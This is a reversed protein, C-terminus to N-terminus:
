LPLFIALWWLLPSPSNVRHLQSQMKNITVISAMPPSWQGNLLFANWYSAYRGCCYGDRGPTQRLAHQSVLGGRPDPVGVGRPGPVGWPCVSVQLFMVKAVENRVTFISTFEVPRDNVWTSILMTPVQSNSKEWDNLGGGGGLLKYVM